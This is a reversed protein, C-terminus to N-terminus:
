SKRKINLINKAFFAPTEGNFGFGKNLKNCYRKALKSNKSVILVQKTNVEEIVHQNSVKSLIYNM